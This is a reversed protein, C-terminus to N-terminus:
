KEAEKVKRQQMCVLSLLATAPGQSWPYWGYKQPYMSLGHCEASSNYVYGDKSSNYLASVSKQVYSICTDDLVGTIIGKEVAYAIMSTASTDVPGEKAELQWCFYGDDRQFQLVRQVMNNFSVCLYDYKDHSKDLYEISDILGILMWGMARGWGIIGLKLKKEFNYAHYPLKLVSDFGYRIFNELQIVALDKLRSDNTMQGYRCLFPCIMGLGDIYINGEHNTPSPITRYPLSRQEDTPHNIVYEAITELAAKYKPLKTKQYVYVLSYGNMVNDLNHIKLGDEIWRDYYAKLRDLDSQNGTYVYSQELAVALLANPWFFRDTKKTKFLMRKIVDKLQRKVSNKSSYPYKCLQDWCIQRTETFFRELDIKDLHNM